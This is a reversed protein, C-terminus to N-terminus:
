RMISNRYELPTQKTEKRFVRTFYSNNDYNLKYSIESVSLDTYSLLKKAEEIIKNKIFCKPSIELSRKVIENLYNPTICLADSYFKTDHYLNYNKEVLEIFDEIYRKHHNDETPQHEKSYERNLLMLMEYLLARLIHRDKSIEENIEEILNNILREIKPFIKGLSIVKTFSNIQFFSLKEIFSSDNFFSHLFEKEFIIAFGEPYNEVDWARIDNPKSFIVDGKTLSYSHNNISIKGSDSTILTIDYYSLKHIPTNCIYKSISELSVVDILLEEGYKNKYFNYKPISEM